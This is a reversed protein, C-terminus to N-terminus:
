WYIRDHWSMPEEGGKEELGKLKSSGFGFGVKTTTALHRIELRSVGLYCEREMCPIWLIKLPNIVPAGLGDILGNASTPHEFSFVNAM